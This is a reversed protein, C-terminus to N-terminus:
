DLYSLLYNLLVLFTPYEYQWIYDLEPATSVITKDGPSFGQSLKDMLDSSVTSRSHISRGVLSHAESLGNRKASADKLDDSHSAESNQFVSRQAGSCLIGLSRESSTSTIGM